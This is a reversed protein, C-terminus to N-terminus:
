LNSLNLFDIECAGFIRRESTHLKHVVFKCVKAVHTRM